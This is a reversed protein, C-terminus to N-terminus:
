QIIIFYINLKKGKSGQPEEGDSTRSCVSTEERRWGSIYLLPPCLLLPIYEERMNSEKGGEELQQKSKRGWIQYFIM